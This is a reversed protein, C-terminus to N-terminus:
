DWIPLTVSPLKNSVTVGATNLVRVYVGRKGGGLGPCSGIMGVPLVPGCIVSIRSACARLVLTYLSNSEVFLDILYSMRPATSLMKKLCKAVAVNSVCVYSRQLKHRM